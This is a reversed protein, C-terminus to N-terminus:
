KLIKKMGRKVIKKIKEIQYKNLKRCNDIHYVRTKIGFFGLIDKKIIKKFRNGTIFFAIKPAGTTLFVIAKKGKLLPIPVGYDFRAVFAYRLLHARIKTPILPKYRFAFGSIFVRDFFGKLIAPMSNWWVPYIFILKDAESIKKQMEKNVNNLEKDKAGYLEKETLVPDYNIKYLDMVEYDSKNKDLHHKVESLITSCHGDSDPHAYIVLIKM